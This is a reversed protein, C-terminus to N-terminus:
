RDNLGKGALINPTSKDIRSTRTGSQKAASFFLNYGRQRGPTLAAFAKKLAPNEKFMVQLEESFKLENKEKFDVKLGAKEVKIAERIYTKLVPEMKAIDQVSNFKIWRVSQSNEGPSALISGADKMLAGKLFGLACNDKLGYIMAVNGNEHTYCLKGWKVDEALGCDLLIARLKKREKQWETKSLLAEVKPNKGNM